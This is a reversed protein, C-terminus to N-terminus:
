KILAMRIGDVKLNATKDAFDAAVAHVRLGLELVMDVRDVFLELVELTVDTFM